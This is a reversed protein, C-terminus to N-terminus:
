VRVYPKLREFTRQGIGSIERLQDITTFRRHQDRWSLIRAAMVPGVGPLADLAALDASNLDIVTSGAGSGAASTAGTGIAGSIPMATPVSPSVLIQEGDVVRRALNLGGSSATSRLGGAADIADSVRAGLPLTVLGPERVQGLVHVIITQPTISPQAGSPAAFSAATVSPASAYSSSVDVLPAGTAMTVLTPTTMTSMHTFVWMVAATLGIAVVVPRLSSSMWVRGRTVGSDAHALDVFEDGDIRGDDEDSHEEAQIRRDRLAVLRARAQNADIRRRPRPLM